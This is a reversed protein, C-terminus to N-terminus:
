GGLRTLRHATTPHFGHFLAFGRASHPPVGNVEDLRALASCLALAGAYRAAFADADYEWRRRVAAVGPRLWFGLLPLLLWCAIWLGLPDLGSVAQMRAGMLLPLSLCLILALLARAALWKEEHHLRCHAAEHAAVALVEEPTLADLLDPSLVIRRGGPLGTFRGNAGTMGEAIRVRCAPLGCETMLHSLRADLVEEPLSEPGEGGGMWHPWLWSGSVELVLWLGWAWLGDDSEPRLLPWLLCALGVPVLGGLWIQPTPFAPRDQCAWSVAGRLLARGGLVLVILVFTPLSAKGGSMGGSLLWGAAWGTEVLATLAEALL